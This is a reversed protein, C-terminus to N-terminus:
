LLKAPGGRLRFAATTLVLSAILLLAAVDRTLPGARSPEAFAFRPLGSDYDALTLLRDQDMWDFALLRMEGAFARAQAQFALARTADTGAIRDLADQTVVAPSLFRLRDALTRHESRGRRYAEHLPRLRSDRQQIERRSHWLSAPYARGSAATAAARAAVANAARVELGAARVANTYAMASPPAAGLNAAAASMAPILITVALWATGMALAATTSARVFLNILIALVIWFTGYASTVLAFLALSAVERAGAILLATVAIATMAALMGGGRVAARALILRGAQVPHALQFRASGSEVDRSWFDYTAAILLLPLLLVIVFALDFRGAALVIPSELGAAHADFITDPDIFPSISAAAPYSEAQGASLLALPANPLGARFPLATAYVLGFKPKEGKALLAAFDTRRLAMIEDAEAVAQTVLAEREAAWRAGALVAFGAALAFLLLMIRMVPDRWARIWELQVLSM